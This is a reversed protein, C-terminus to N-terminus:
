GKLDPVTGGPFYGRAAKKSIKRQKTKAAKPLGEVIAEPEVVKNCGSGYEHELAAPGETSSANHHQLANETVHREAVRAGREAHQMAPM